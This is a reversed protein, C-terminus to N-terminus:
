QVLTDWWGGGGFGYMKIRKPWNKPWTPDLGAAKKDRSWGVFVKPTM